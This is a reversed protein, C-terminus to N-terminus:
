REERDVENRQNFSLDGKSGEFEQRETKRLSSIGEVSIFHM